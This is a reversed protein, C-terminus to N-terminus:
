ASSPMRSLLGDRPSPSTYLLCGTFLYYVVMIKQNFTSMRPLEESWNLQAPAQIGALLVGFHTLGAVVLGLQLWDQLTM